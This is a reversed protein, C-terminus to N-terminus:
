SGTCPRRPSPENMVSTMSAALERASRAWRGQKLEEIDAKLTRFSVKLLEVVQGFCDDTREALVDIKTDVRALDRRLEGQDSEVLLVRGKVDRIDAQLRKMQEGILDLSVNEGAM